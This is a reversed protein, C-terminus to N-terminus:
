NPKDGPKRAILVYNKCYGRDMIQHGLDARSLLLSMMAFLPRMIVTGGAVLLGGIGGGYQRWDAPLGRAMDLLQLSATAAYGELRRVSEIAFGAGRALSALGYQTYRFFDGPVMHEPYFFPATLWLRANPKLVRFIEALVQRPNEVHEIVQTCLVLDHSGTAFPLKSLDGVVDLDKFSVQRVSALDIACYRHNAFASAYQGNGSGADLIRSGTEVSKAAEDVLHALHTRSPNTQIRPRRAHM